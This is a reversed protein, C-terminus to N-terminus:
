SGNVCSCTVTECHMPNDETPSVWGVWMMCLNGSNGDCSSLWQTYGSWGWSSWSSSCGNALWTVGSPTLEEIPQNTQSDFIMGQEAGSADERILLAGMQEPHVYRIATVPRMAAVPEPLGDPMFGRAALQEEVTAPPLPEVIPDELETTCAATGAIALCGALISTSKAQNSIFM